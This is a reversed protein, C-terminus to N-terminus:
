LKESTSESLKQEALIRRNMKRAAQFIEAPIKQRSCYDIWTVLDKPFCKGKVGRHGRHWIVRYHRGMPVGVWKSAMAAKIVREYDLKEKRCVEWYHNSELVELVGHLNNIYKLLEAEKAPFIMDYPSVPLSNLVKIAMSLSQGTYGIFQRDPNNFDSDATAESLFEPNFLLKLGPFKKQLRDTTGVTVTSKLVVTKGIPILSLVSIVASDDYTKKIWLYPTPVCVFILDANLAQKKQTQERLDYGWVPYGSKKFYRYVTGGVMGLHGIVGVSKFHKLSIIIGM